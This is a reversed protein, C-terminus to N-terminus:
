RPMITLFVTEIHHKKVTSDIRFSKDPGGKRYPYLPCDGSPCLTVEKRKGTMCELCYKRIARNREGANQKGQGSRFQCLPCNLFVCNRVEKPIWGSCNLCRERAAIRRNLNTVKHGDKGLIEYLM